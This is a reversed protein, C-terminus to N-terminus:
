GHTHGQGHHHHHDHHHHHHEAAEAQEALFRWDAGGTQEVERVRELLVPILGEDLGLYSGMTVFFDPHGCSFRALKEEMRKILVGTFLFYPLVICTRAGLRQCRELGEEFLPDTVGIFATEVWKVPHQEWFLRSIKYLDSNADPDSSGRGVLLVAVDHREDEEEGTPLNMEELRRSLISLIGKDVEFPRGYRFEVQPYRGRAEQISLPIHVKAHGASFLMIPIVSIRTAGREVCRAIGQPIDPLALELFCTEIVPTMLHRSVQDTFQLLEANGEPDRSGHGVFLVADM